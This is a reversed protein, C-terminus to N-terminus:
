DIGVAGEVVRLFENQQALYKPLADPSLPSESPQFAKPASLKRTSEPLLYRILLGGMWTPKYQVVSTVPWKQRGQEIAKNWYSDFGKTSVTLHDLCQSISWTDPSVIWSMQDDRLGAVLEQATASNKEAEERITQLLNPSDIFLKM